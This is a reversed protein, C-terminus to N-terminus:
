AAEPEKQRSSRPLAGLAVQAAYLLKTSRNESIAGILMGHATCAIFDQINESGSLPPMANRYAKAAHFSAVIEDKERVALKKFTNQWAECCRAVAANKLASNAGDMTSQFIARETTFSM